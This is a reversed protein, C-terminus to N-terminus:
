EFLLPSESMVKEWCENNFLTVGKAAKIVPNINLPHNGYQM